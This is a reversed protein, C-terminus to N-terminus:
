DISRRLSDQRVHNNKRSNSSTFTELVPRMPLAIEASFFSICLHSVAFWSCLDVYLLKHMGRAGCFKDGRWANPSRPLMRLLLTPSKPWWSTNGRVETLETM